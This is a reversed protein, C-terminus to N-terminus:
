RQLRQRHLNPDIAGAMQDPSSFRDSGFFEAIMSAAKGGDQVVDSYDLELLNVESRERLAKLARLEHERLAAAVQAPERGAGSKGSRDLMVQQSQAVEGVPRRMYIIRYAHKRPLHKLLPSVIKVPRNGAEEILAPSEGLHKIAEWEYYGRPNDGDAKRLGDTMPELGGRDLMQMLLSTGSRPLGSVILFTKGSSGVPVPDPFDYFDVPAQDARLQALRRERESRLRELTERTKGGSRQPPPTNLNSRSLHSMVKEQTEPPVTPHLRFLADRSNKLNPELRLAEAYSEAAAESEGLLDSTQALTLHAVPLERQLALARRAADAAEHYFKKHLLARGLGLWALADDPDEALVSRFCDEAVAGKGEHLALLGCQKRLSANDSEIGGAAEFHRRANELDGLQLAIQGRLRRAEPHSEGYDLLVDLAENAEAGFGLAAFARALHFAYHPAEPSAAYAEWLEPVADGPLNADLLSIGLNFANERKMSEGQDDDASSPAEMYGLDVFQKLLGDDEDPDSGESDPAPWWGDVNETWSPIREPPKSDKIVEFIARGDMDKGVPLDFLHLLTPTLDLISAGEITEAAKINAGSIVLMGHPRHWDALGAVVEPTRAPRLHDSQFGHDSALLLTTDPGAHQLLDTLLFDQVRYAADVVSGYFRVDRESIEPRRPPRYAMFEHCIWDIFHYYVALCRWSPDSALLTIASNHTTYLEALRYLLQEWRRDRELDMEDIHPLFLRLLGQDVEELRLRTGGLREAWERPAVSGDAIPWKEGVGNPPAIFAESVCVGNIKEAPYSAFWGVVHNRLGRESLLNWFAPCRRCRSSVASVKGSVPDVRTFGLIGHRHPRMGTAMSNWLMPSLYPPLSKIPGSAGNQLALALQPLQGAQLLPRAIKWDAGDWGVFLVKRKSM